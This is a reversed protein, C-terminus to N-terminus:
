VFARLGKKLEIEAGRKLYRKGTGLTTYNQVVRTGDYCEGREQYAGYKLGHGFSITIVNNERKVEGSMRLNGGPKGMEESMPCLIIASGRINRGMREGAGYCLERMKQAWAVTNDKVVTIEVGM